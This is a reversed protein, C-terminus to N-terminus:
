VEQCLVETEHSWNYHDFINNVGIWDSSSQLYSMSRVLLDNHRMTTWTYNSVCFCCFWQDKFTGSDFPSLPKYNLWPLTWQKRPPSMKHPLRVLGYFISTHLTQLNLLMNKRSFISLCVDLVKFGIHFLRVKISIVRHRCLCNFHFKIQSHIHTLSCAPSAGALALWGFVRKKTFETYVFLTKLARTWTYLGQHYQSCLKM